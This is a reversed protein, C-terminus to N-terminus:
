KIQISNVSPDLVNVKEGLGPTPQAASRLDSSPWEAAMLGPVVPQIVSKESCSGANLVNMVEFEKNFTKKGTKKKKKKKEKLAM